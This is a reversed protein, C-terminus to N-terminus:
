SKMENRAVKLFASRTSRLFEWPPQEDPLPNWLAHNLKSSYRIAADNVTKSCTVEILKQRFWTAHGLVARTEGGQHDEDPNELRREIDQAARLFSWIAEKSAARRADEESRQRQRQFRLEERAAAEQEIRRSRVTEARLGILSGALAVIAGLSGSVAAIGFLLAQDDM